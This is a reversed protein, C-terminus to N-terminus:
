IYNRRRNGPTGGRSMAAREASRDERGLLWHALRPQRSSSTNLAGVTRTVVSVAKYLFIKKDICSLSKKGQKKESYFYLNTPVSISRWGAVTWKVTWENDISGCPCIQLSTAPTWLRDFHRPNGLPGLASKEECLVVRWGGGEWRGKGM